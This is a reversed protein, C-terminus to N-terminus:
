FAGLGQLGPVSERTLTLGLRTPPWLARSGSSAAEQGGQGRRERRTEGGPRQKCDWGRARM